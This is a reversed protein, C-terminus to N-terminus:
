VFDKRNKLHKNVCPKTVRLNMSLKDVDFVHKTNQSM